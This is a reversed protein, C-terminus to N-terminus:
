VRLTPARDRDVRNRDVRDRDARDLDSAPRCDTSTRGTTEGCGPASAAGTDFRKPRDPRDPRTPHHITGDPRLFQPRRTAPDLRCRWRHKKDARHLRRHHAACVLVLNDINTPGHGPPAWPDIHHADCLRAPLGCDPFACGGDRIALARRQDANALRISRGMDLPVGAADLVLRAIDSDCLLMELTAGGIPHELRDLTAAMPFWGGALVAAILEQNDRVSGGTPGGGIPGSDGQTTDGNGPAAQDCRCGPECGSGSEGGNGDTVSTCNGCPQDNRRLSPHTAQYAALVQWPTHVLVRARPGGPDNDCAGFAKAGAEVLLALADARRQSISRRRDPAGPTSGDAPDSEAKTNAEAEDTRRLQEAVQDVATFLAHGVAPEWLGDAAVMANYTEYSRLGRQHHRREDPPTDTLNDALSRWHAMVQRFSRASLEAAYEVIQDEVPEFYAVLDEPVSDAVIAGHQCSVRGDLVAALVKPARDALKRAVAMRVRARDLGATNALWAAPSRAGDLGWGGAADWAALLGAGAAELNDVATCWQAVLEHLAGTSTRAFPASAVESRLAATAEVVQEMPYMHEISTPTPVPFL